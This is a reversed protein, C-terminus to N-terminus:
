IRQSLAAELDPVQNGKNLVTEVGKEGEQNKGVEKSHIRFHSYGAAPNLFDQIHRNGDRWIFIPHCLSLCSTIQFKVIHGKSIWAFSLIWNQM